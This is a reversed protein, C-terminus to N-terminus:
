RKVAKRKMLAAFIISIMSVLSVTTWLVINSHDGTDPVLKDIEFTKTETYEEDEFTVKATVVKEGKEEYTPRKTVTETVEADLLLEHEDVRECVFKAKASTGDESWVFEAFNWIHGLGKLTAVSEENLDLEENLENTVVKVDSDECTATFYFKVVTAGAEVADIQAYAFKITGDEENVSTFEVDSEAKVFQVEKNDYTLTILGNNADVDQVYEVVQVQGGEAEESVAVSAKRNLKSALKAASFDSSVPTYTPKAANTHEKMDISVAELEASNALCKEVKEAVVSNIISAKDFVDDYMTSINSANKLTGVYTAEATTEDGAPLVLYYISKSKNDTIFLADEGTEGAAYTMSFASLDSDISLGTVDCIKALRAGLNSGSNYVSWMYIEGDATLVYYINSVTGSTQNPYYGAFAIAVGTAHQSSADFGNLSGEAMDFFLFMGEENFGALDFDASVAGNTIQPFNAGDLPTYQTNITFLAESAYGNNVDYVWVDDSKDVGFIHSGDRGGSVFPNGAVAGEGLVTTSMDNLDIKVFQVDNGVMIQANVTADMPNSDVVRVTATASVTPTLNSTATIVAEGVAKATVVGNEDVTVVNENSSKWTVTRDELYVPNVTATLEASEKVGLILTTTEPSIIVEDAVNFDASEEYTSYGYLYVPTELTEKVVWERKSVFNLFWDGTKLAGNEDAYWKTDIKFTQVQKNVETATLYDEYYKNVLVIEGDKEEALWILKDTWKNSKNFEASQKDESIYVLGREADESVTILPYVGDTYQGYSSEVMAYGEGAENINAIIYEHGAELKDTLFYASMKYSGTEALKVLRYIENAAYDGVFLVLAKEDTINSLDFEVTCDQNLETQEPVLGDYIKSGDMNMLAVYAVYRNDSVTVTLKTKDENLEMSKVVPATNDVTFEFGLESGAGLKGSKVLSQFSDIDLTGETDMAYYEPVAFVGVNFMDGESLGLEAVTKGVAATIPSTNRWSGGNVYYYAAMVDASVSGGFLTEGAIGTEDTKYALTGVTGANRILTYKFGEITTKSSIALRDYPFAEEIAYPNGIVVSSDGEGPYKILMYNSTVGTYPEEGVYYQEVLSTDYMSGDTWNGYFGVLPISKQVDLKEGDETESVCDIYTYGEVYAGNVYVQDLVDRDLLQITVKVTRTGGAPVVFGNTTDVWELLLEADYSTIGEQGDMEGAALDLKSGDVVGTIYDLLAQADDTDTDGDRDVDHQAGVSSLEYSVDADLLWTDPSLYAYSSSVVVQQSFIDTSLEYVLDQDSFNTINFSYTYLGDRNPDDGLEAKVKGDAYSATADENMMIFSLSKTAALVDALGSGQRLVPYYNGEADFMPTSTSMLLSNVLTRQNGNTLKALDNEEIYQALLAVMGTIHPAAMSTGSMLEYGTNTMGNVSYINGGPAVIEPKMTLAGPVGWSSFESLTADEREITQGSVIKDTVEVSGTYVKLKGVTTETSAAKIKEADSLTISVFPYEYTYGELNMNIEGPQNNACIIAAPDYAGVANGKQYFSTSGRNIIVVKGSLSIEASVAAVDADTGVSDIYVYEYTGKRSVIPKNSYGDSEAFFVKQEGNFILPSGTSGINDASAVSFSNVFTGPSGTTAFSVDDYYLYGGECDNQAFYSYNYSNGASNIVATQNEVLKDMLQQYLGTFSFGQNGSGLSLNCSDAGLLIADEIAAMYDSDNAGGNKGFVKMTIIQADPAVGVAYVSDLADVYQGDVKVYRNAAAIGSVHSGHEGQGDHLHDTEYDVDVYNFAYPIKLSEYLIDVDVGTPIRKNANLRDVVKEIDEKTLLDYDSLSKGDKTLSYALADGDFSIHDQNTGTDIIAVIQGAGTYGNAWCYQAFTMEATSVTTNVDEEPQYQNEIWIEKVDSLKAIKEIDGYKVEASIINAALTLNWKVDLEEGLSREIKATVKDQKSQLNDRYKIAKKSDLDETSYKELTAPSKLVISIRVVDEDTYEGDNKLKQEDQVPEANIAPSKVNEVDEGVDVTTSSGNQNGSNGVTDAKVASFACNFVIVVSLLASLFKRM